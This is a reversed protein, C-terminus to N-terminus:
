QFKQAEVKMADIHKKKIAQQKEKDHIKLIDIVELDIRRLPISEDIRHIGRKNILCDL